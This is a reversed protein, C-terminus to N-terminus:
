RLTELEGRRIEAVEKKPPKKKRVNIASADLVDKLHAAYYKEIMEVSTRCNKALMYIDAGEMLRFCIYTHRLSYLTRPRGERDFKLGLETLIRNFLEHHSKPFIKDSPQPKNRKKLREFVPVANQTSKCPGYGRKGRVEIELITEQTGEDFAVAVDRYELRLAEDPRLGTNSMFLVLDHLQECMWRWRSSKPKRARRGTAQYLQRYEDRSFWARHSIKGNKRYPESLDPLANLWQHRLATKLIQRLCVIEQHMTTRAPPKGWREKADAIRHMRYENVLGGTIESLGKKGFFPILYKRARREHGKVYIANRQGETLVPFEELFKEAAALFTKEKKRATVKELDGSRVMGRLRLYWEEAVEEAQRLDDKKTAIRFQKGEITTSAQYLGRPGRRYVHVKGGLIIHNKQKPARQLEVEDM